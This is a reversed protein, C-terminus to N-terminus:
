SSMTSTREFGSALSSRTADAIWIARMLTSSPSSRPGNSKFGSMSMSIKKPHGSEVHFALRNFPFDAVHVRRNRRSDNKLIFPIRHDIIPPRPPQPSRLALNTIHKKVPPINPVIHSTSTLVYLHPSPFEPSLRLRYFINNRDLNISRVYKNIPLLASIM